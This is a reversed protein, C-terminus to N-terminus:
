RHLGCTGNNCAAQLAMCTVCQCAAQGKAVLDAAAAAGAQNVFTYCLPPDFCGDAIWTCDSDVSCARNAAVVADFQSRLGACEAALDSSPALDSPSAALDSSSPTGGGCGVLLALVALSIRM